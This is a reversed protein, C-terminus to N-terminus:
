GCAWLNFTFIHNKPNSSLHAFDLLFWFGDYPAITLNESSHQFYKPNANGRWLIPKLFDAGIRWEILLLSFSPCQSKNQSMEINITCTNIELKSQNMPNNTGKTVAKHNNKNQNKSVWNFVLRYYHTKWLLSIEQVM